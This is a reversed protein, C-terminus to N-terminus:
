ENTRVTGLLRLRRALFGCWPHGNWLTLLTLCSPGHLLEPGPVGADVPLQDASDYDVVLAVQNIRLVYTQVGEVCPM